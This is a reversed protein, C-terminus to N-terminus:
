RPKEKNFISKLKKNKQKTSPQFVQVLGNIEKISHSFPYATWESDEESQNVLINWKCHAHYGALLAIKSIGIKAINDTNKVNEKRSIQQIIDPFPQFRPTQDYSVWSDFYQPLDSKSFIGDTIAAPLWSVGVITCNEHTAIKLFKILDPHIHLNGKESFSVRLQEIIDNAIKEVIKPEPNRLWRQTIIESIELIPKGILKRIVWKETIIGNRKITDNIINTIKDTDGIAIGITDIIVLEPWRNEV